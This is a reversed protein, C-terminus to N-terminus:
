KMSAPVPVAKRSPSGYSIAAPSKRRSGGPVRWENTVPRPLVPVGSNGRGRSCVLDVVGVEIFSKRGSLAISLITFLPCARQGLAGVNFLPAFQLHCSSPLVSQRWRRVPSYFPFFARSLHSLWRSLFCVVSTGHRTTRRALITEHTKNTATLKRIGKIRWGGTLLACFGPGRVPADSPPTGCHVLLIRFKGCGPM